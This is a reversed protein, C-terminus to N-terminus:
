ERLRVLGEFYLNCSNPDKLKEMRARFSKEEENEEMHSGGRGEADYDGESCLSGCSDISSSIPAYPTGPIKHM